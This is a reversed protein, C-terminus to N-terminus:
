EVVGAEWNPFNRSPILTGDIAKIAPALIPAFDKRYEKLFDHVLRYVFEDNADAPLPSPNPHVIKKFAFYERYRPLDSDLDRLKHM